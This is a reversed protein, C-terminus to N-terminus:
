TTPLSWTGEQPCVLHGQIGTLQDLWVITLTHCWPIVISMDCLCLCLDGPALVALMMMVQICVGESSLPSMSAASDGPAQELGM